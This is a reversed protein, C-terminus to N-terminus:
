SLFAMVHDLCLAYVGHCLAPPAASDDTELLQRSVNVLPRDDFVTPM